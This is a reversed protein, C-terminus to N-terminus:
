ILIFKRKWVMLALTFGDNCELLATEGNKLIGFDIGYGATKENFNEFYNIANEVVNM